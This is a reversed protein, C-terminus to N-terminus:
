VSAAGRLLESYYRNEIDAKDIGAAALVDLLRRRATNEDTCDLIELELFWGLTVPIGDKVSNPIEEECFGSVETLEANVGDINWAWGEKRKTIKKRLGLSLLLEEFLAGCSVTFEREDNIEMGNRKEKIKRTVLTTEKGATKEQRIRVGSRSGGPFWYADAKVFPAGPGAIAELRNKLAQRAELSSDVRAKLEIETGM